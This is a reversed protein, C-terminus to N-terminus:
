AWKLALASTISRSVLSACRSMSAPSFTGPVVVRVPTIQGHAVDHNVGFGRGQEAVAVVRRALRAHGLEGGDQEVM